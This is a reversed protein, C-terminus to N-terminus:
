FNQRTNMEHSLTKDIKPNIAKKLLHQRESDGKEKLTNTKTQCTPARQSTQLCQTEPVSLLLRSAGLTHWALAKDKLANSFLGWTVLMSGVEDQGRPTLIESKDTPWLSSNDGTRWASLGSLGHEPCLLTPSSFAWYGDSMRYNGGGKELHAQHDGIWPSQKVGGM